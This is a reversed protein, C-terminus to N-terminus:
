RRGCWHDLSVFLTKSMLTLTSATGQCHLKGPDHATHLGLFIYQVISDREGHFPFRNIVRM